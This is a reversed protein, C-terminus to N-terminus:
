HRNAEDAEHQALYARQAPTYDAPRLLPGLRSPRKREAEAVIDDLHPVAQADVLGAEILAETILHAYLDPYFRRSAEVKEIAAEIVDTVDTRGVAESADWYAAMHPQKPREGKM